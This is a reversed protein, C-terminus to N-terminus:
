NKCPSVRKVALRSTVASATLDPLADFPDPSEFDHGPQSSPANRPRKLIGANTSDGSEDPQSNAQIVRDILQEVIEECIDSTLDLQPLIQILLRQLKRRLRRYCVLPRRCLVIDPSFQHSDNNSPLTLMKAPEDIGMIASVSDVLQEVAESDPSLRLPLQVGPFLCCFLKYAKNRLAVLRTQDTVFTKLDHAIAIRTLEAENSRVQFQSLEVETEDMQSYAKAVTQGPCTECAIEESPQIKESKDYSPLSSEESEQWSICKKGIETRSERAFAEMQPSLSARRFIRSQRRVVQNINRVKRSTGSLPLQPSLASHPILVDLVPVIELEPLRESKIADCNELLPMGHGSLELKDMMRRVKLM